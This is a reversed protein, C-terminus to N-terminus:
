EGSRRRRARQLENIRERNAVKWRNGLLTACARCCRNGHRDLRLNDGFFPHGRACHTRQKKKEQIVEPLIGRATNVAMPVPELHRPNVCPPNRCLHDIVLGDPIPGVFHEYSFRHALVKKGHGGQLEGYGTGIKSALWPWCENPGGIVFKALFREQVTPRPYVGSPM